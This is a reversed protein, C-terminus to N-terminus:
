WQIYYPLDSASAPRTTSGCMRKCIAKYVEREQYTQQVFIRKTYEVACDLIKRRDSVSQFTTNAEFFDQLDSISQARCDIKTAMALGTSAIRTM